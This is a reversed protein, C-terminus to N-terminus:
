WGGGKEAGGKISRDNFMRAKKLAGQDHSAQRVREAAPKNGHRLTEHNSEGTPAKDSGEKLGHASLSNGNPKSGNRLTTEPGNSKGGRTGETVQAGHRGGRAGEMVQAGHRGGMSGEKAQAM